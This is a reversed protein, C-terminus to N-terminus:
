NLLIPEGNDARYYALHACASTTSTLTGDFVASGDIDVVAYGNHYLTVEAEQPGLRLGFSVYAEDQDEDFVEWDSSGTLQEMWGPLDVEVRCIVPENWIGLQNWGTLADESFNSNTM